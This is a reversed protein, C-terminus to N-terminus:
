RASADVTPHAPLAGGLSPTGATADRLPPPTFPDDHDLHIEDLPITDVDRRLLLYISSVATWFYSHGYAFAILRITQSWFSVIRGAATAAPGHSAALLATSREAGCGWTVGWVTLSITLEALLVVVLWAALGLIAAVGIYFVFRVPRQTVYSFARNFGDFADNGEASIAPWVLPWGCLLAGLLIACLLSLVAGIPWLIAVILYGVETRSVWGAVMGPLVVLLVVGGLPFLPGGVYSFWKGLAFRGAQSLLLRRDQAVRMAALRTIMGGVVAWVAAVWVACLLAMSLGVWHSDAAFLDCFPRAYWAPLAVAARGVEVAADAVAATLTAESALEHLRVHPAQFWPKKLEESPPSADGEAAADDGDTLPDIREPRETIDKAGYAAVQRRVVADKGWWRFYLESVGWWGCMTAVLGILCLLLKRPDLAISISRVLVVWPAVEPWDVERLCARDRSM